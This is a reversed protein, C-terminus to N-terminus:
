RPFCDSPHTYPKEQPYLHSALRYEGVEEGLVSELELAAVPNIAASDLRSFSEGKAKGHLLFLLLSRRLCDRMAGHM